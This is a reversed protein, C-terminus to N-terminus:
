VHYATAINPKFMTHQLLAPNLCPISYYHETKLMTHLAINLQLWSINYYHETTSITNWPLTGYYGQCTITTNRTVMNGHYPTSISPRLWPKSLYHEIKTLAAPCCDASYIDLYHWAPICSYIVSKYM